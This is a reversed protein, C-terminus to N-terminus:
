RPIAPESPQVPLEPPADARLSWPSPGVPDRARMLWELVADAWIESGKTSPHVRDAKLPLHTVLADSDVFRCPAAHRRIVGLVGTDAKWRPPSIWICSRDGLKAVIREVAAARREPEPIEFENGGLTIIVLDPDHRAVLKALAAGHAWTPIYSADEFELVSRVGAAKLRRSLPIGLAAAFSDGVHLVVTDKPLDHVSTAPHTSSPAELPTGPPDTPAVPPATPPPVAPIRNSSSPLIRSQETATTTPQATAPSDAVTPAPACATWAACAVSLLRLELRGWRRSEQM